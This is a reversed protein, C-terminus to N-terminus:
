LTQSLEILECRLELEDKALSVEGDGFKMVLPHTAPFPPKFKYAYEHVETISPYDLVKYVIEILPHGRLKAIYDISSPPEPKEWRPPWWPELDQAILEDIIEDFSKM